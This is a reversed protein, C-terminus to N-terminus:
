LPVWPAPKGWRASWYLAVRAGRATFSFLPGDKNEDYPAKRNYLLRRTAQSGRMLWEKCEAIAPPDEVEAAYTDGKDDTFWAVVTHHAGVQTALFDLVSPTM